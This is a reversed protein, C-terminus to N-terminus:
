RKGDDLELIFTNRRNQNQCLFTSSYILFMIGNYMNVYSENGLFFLNITHTNKCHSVWSINKRPDYSKMTYM